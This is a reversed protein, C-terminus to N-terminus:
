QHSGLHDQRRKIPGEDVYGSKEVSSCGVYVCVFEAPEDYPNYFWHVHNKKVFVAGGPGLVKETEGKETALGAMVRGRILYIVEDAGSHRHRRHASNPPFVCRALLVQENDEVTEDTILYNLELGPMLKSAEPDEPVESYHWFYKKALKKRSEERISSVELM